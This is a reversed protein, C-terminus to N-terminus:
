RRDPDTETSRTRRSPAMRPAARQLRDGRQRERWPRRRRRRRRGGAAVQIRTWSCVEDGNGRQAQAVCRSAADVPLIAPFVILAYIDIRLVKVCLCAWRSNHMNLSREKLM